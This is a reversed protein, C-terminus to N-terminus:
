VEGVWKNLSNQIVQKIMLFPNDNLIYKKNIDNLSQRSKLELAFSKKVQLFFM